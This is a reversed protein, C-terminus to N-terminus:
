EEVARRIDRAIYGVADATPHPDNWAIRVARRDLQEVHSGIVFSEIGLAAFAEALRAEYALTGQLDDYFTVDRYIGVKLDTGERECLAQMRALGELTHDFAPSDLRSTTPSAAPSITPSTAPSAASSAATPGAESPAADFSHAKASLMARVTEIGNRVLYSLYVSRYLAQTARHLPTSGINGFEGDTLRLQNHDFTIDNELFVLVVTDVDYRALYDELAALENWTTYGSAAVNKVRVPRVRVTEDAAAYLAQLQSAPTEDGELGHGFVVSDGLLLVTHAVDQRGVVASSGGNEVVRYGDEDLRVKKGMYYGEYGARMRYPLYEDDHAEYMGPDALTPRYGTARLALEAVVITFLLSAGLLAANKVVGTIRTATRKRSM